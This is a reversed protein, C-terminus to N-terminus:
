LQMMLMCIQTRLSFLTCKKDEHMEKVLKLLEEKTLKELLSEEPLNKQM